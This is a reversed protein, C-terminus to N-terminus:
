CVRMQRNKARCTLKFKKKTLREFGKIIELVSYKTGSGCNILIEKNNELYSYIKKHIRCLDYVHIFDREPTGDKTSLSNGNINM